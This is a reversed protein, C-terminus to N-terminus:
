KVITEITAQAQDLAAKAPKQGTLTSQMADYIAKSIKQWEPHPGRPQAYELQEKFVKLADDKEANGSAPLVIDKRAPISSFEPFMRNDQAVFYELVKFAEDPHATKSMIGWDFGGMASSRPGDKVLTPLLTVGWKFKADSLMRNIEWPGSVAMAANGANFTGTSDWQGLTLVDKSVSGKDIMSKWLDLAKAAGKTNVKKFSGGSMQILPLFQFTGEEGAKASFTAGYIHHAPDKLKDADAAFEDWTQPPDAIGAKKFMDKNYFVGITDTYKPVGYYRGDWTVSALPGKYYNDVNIVKSKAIRDTIDLMAGRSSFMAFDPNDFSVLDPAQGTAFARLTENVLDDFPIARYDIKIDTNKENFEKSLADAIGPSNSGDISWVKITVPAADASIAFSSVTALAFASILSLKLKKM